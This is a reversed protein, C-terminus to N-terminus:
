RNIIILTESQRWLSLSFQIAYHWIDPEIEPIFGDTQLQIKVNKVETTNFQLEDLLEIIRKRIAVIETAISSNSWIDLLYTGFRVPFPESARMELRHVLYPFVADPVAWVPYLRVTGGMATKLTSDATLIGYIYTLLSEQTDVM